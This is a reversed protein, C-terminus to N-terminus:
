IILIAVVLAATVVLGSLCGLGLSRRPPESPVYIPVAVYQEVSEAPEASRVPPLEGAADEEVLPAPPHPVSIGAECKPCTIPRGALAERARLPSLCLPCHFHIM